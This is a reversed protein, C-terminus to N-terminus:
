RPAWISFDQMAGRRGTARDYDTQPEGLPEAQLDKHAVLAAAIQASLANCAARVPDWVNVQVYANRRQAQAGEVYMVPRGGILHWVVYPTEAGDPAADPYVRPCQTQLVATLTEELTTSM